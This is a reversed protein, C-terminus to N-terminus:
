PIFKIEDDALTEDDSIDEPIEFLKLYKETQADTLSKYNEGRTAVVVFPGAIISRGSNFSRNGKMGKIKAEENCLIFVNKELHLEEFHGQVARQIGKLGPEMEGAVAPKGPEVYVVKLLNNPKHTKFINFDIQKFGFRDCYFFGDETQVVDSVSLSHGRHLGIPTSGNFLGYVGELTVADVEGSYVEDYLSADVASSGQYKELQDRGMFKVNNKDKETDIQYIKVIM